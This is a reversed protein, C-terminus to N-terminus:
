LSPLSIWGLQIDLIDLEFSSALIDMWFRKLLSVFIKLTDLQTNYPYGIYVRDM